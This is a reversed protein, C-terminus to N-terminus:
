NHQALAVPSLSYRSWYDVSSISMSRPFKTNAPDGSDKGVAVDIALYQPHDFPWSMGLATAQQRTVTKTLKGDLYFAVRQSDYAVGFRHPSAVQSATLATTDQDWGTTLSGGLAGVSHVNTRILTTRGTFTAEMLDLEGCGPWPNTDEDAGVLWLGPWVGSAM